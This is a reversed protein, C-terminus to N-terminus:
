RHTRVHMGTDTDTCTNVTLPEGEGASQLISEQEGRKEPETKVQKRDKDGQALLLLSHIKVRKKEQYGVPIGACNPSLLQVKQWVINSEIKRGISFQFQKIVSLLACLFLFVLFFVFM